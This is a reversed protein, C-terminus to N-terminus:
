SNRSIPKHDTSLYFWRGKKDAEKWVGNSKTETAEVLNWSLHPHPPPLPTNFFAGM